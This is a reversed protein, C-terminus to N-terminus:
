AVLRYCPRYEGALKMRRQSVFSSLLEDLLGMVVKDGRLEFPGRQEIAQIGQEKVNGAVIGSFARRLNVAMLHPDLDRHLELKAMAEHTPEFPQQFDGQIKLLWNFNYSDSRTRRFDRVSEVGKIVEPAAQAPDGIV